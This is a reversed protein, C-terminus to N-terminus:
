PRDTPPDIRAGLRESPEVLGGFQTQVPLGARSAADSVLHEVALWDSARPGDLHRNYAADFVIVDNGQERLAVVNHPADDIYLDAEIQPKDGLFCLDRYPIGARDLWEVTDSVAVAHGWNVALRHSIVRIWVGADSLRWLVEAVDAVVPMTRFIRHDLVARRHLHEFTPRDLGWDSFDWTTPPELEETARGQHTAVIPALAATYEGCVGDLDVGFIFTM